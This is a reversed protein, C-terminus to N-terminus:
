LQGGRLRVFQGALGCNELATADLQGYAILVSPAGSNAKARRGDPYHFHLRGRLFLLAAARKWVTEFFVDTETRAFILATGHNHDAMRGMWRGIVDREYPPNFWVRGRWPASLGDQAEVINDLACAWPRPEPAACPDLDFEGLARVIAPPTLWVQTAGHPAQHGGMGPGRDRTGDDFMM